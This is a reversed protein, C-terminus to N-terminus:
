ESLAGQMPNSNLEDPRFIISSQPPEGSFESKPMPPENRGLDCVLLCTFSLGGGRSVVEDSGSALKTMKKSRTTSFERSTPTMEQM